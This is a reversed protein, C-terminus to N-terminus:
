HRKRSGKVPSIAKAAAVRRRETDEARSKEEIADELVNWVEGIALIDVQEWEPDGLDGDEEPVTLFEVHMSSHESGEFPARKILDYYAWSPTYEYIAQAKRVVRKGFLEMALDFALKGKFGPHTHSWRRREAEDNETARILADPDNIGMRRALDLLAWLEMGHLDDLNSVHQGIDAHKGLGLRLYHAALIDIDPAKPTSFRKSM